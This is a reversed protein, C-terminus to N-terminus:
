GLVLEAELREQEDAALRHFEEPGAAILQEDTEARM